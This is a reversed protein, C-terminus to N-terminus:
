FEYVICLVLVNIGGVGRDVCRVQWNKLWYEVFGFMGVMVKVYGNENLMFKKVREWWM